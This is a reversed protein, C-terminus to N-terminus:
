PSVRYQSERPGTDNQTKLRCQRLVANIEARRIDKSKHPSFGIAIQRFVARLANEVDALDYGHKEIMERSPEDLANGSSLREYFDEDPYVFENGPKSVNVLLVRTGHKRASLIEFLCWPRTLIGNTLLIAVNHSTRVKTELEGLNTLNESDLFVPEDFNHGLSGPDEEIAQELEHRMLAAETGAEVKYHSLFVLHHLRSVEHFLTAEVGRACRLQFAEISSPSLARQLTSTLTVHQDGLRQRLLSLDANMLDCLCLIGMESMPHLLSQLDHEGLFAQLDQSTSRNSSRVSGRGFSRRVHMPCNDSFHHGLSGCRGCLGRWLESSCFEQFERMFGLSSILERFRDSHVAMLSTITQTVLTRSRRLLSSVLASEGVWMGKTFSDMHPWGKKNAVFVEGDVVCYAAVSADGERFLITKSPLVEERAKQALEIVFSNNWSQIRAILGLTKLRNSWLEGCITRRLELPLDNSLLEDFYKQQRRAQGTDRLSYMVQMQTAFSVKHQRLYVMADRQIHSSRADEIRCLVMYMVEWFFCLILSIREAAVVIEFIWLQPGGPSAPDGLSGVGIASHAWWFAEMYRRMAEDFNDTQGWDTRLAAWVCGNTHALIILLSAAQLPKNLYSFRYLIQYRQDQVSAQRV